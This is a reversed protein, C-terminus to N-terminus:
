IGGYSDNKENKGNGLRGVCAPLTQRPLIRVSDGIQLAHSNRPIGAPRRLSHPAAVAIGRCVM